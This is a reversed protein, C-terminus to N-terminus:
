FQFYIFASPKGSAFVLAFLMLGYAYPEVATNIRNWISGTNRWLSQFHYILVPCCLLCIIKLEVLDMPNALAPQTGSVVAKIYRFFEESSNLSFFLWGITVYSFVFMIRVVKALGELSYGTLSQLSLRNSWRHDRSLARELALAIGHWLGWVGFKWASGHWLGGLFMVILINIYTTALGHRNGGLPIYLYDRLWTSLTIHWRRWFDRFSDALYPFNFNEPLDYGFLRAVGIAILSYGAFDAFIQISYGVALAVLVLAPKQEWQHAYRLVITFQNLNDAIVMKLFYGGTLLKVIPLWDVSALEKTAIQGYFMKAKAIPGSMLKPFFFIYLATNSSHKLVSTWSWGRLFVTDEPKRYSDVLLSIGSFTYFSIALPLPLLFLHEMFSGDQPGSEVFPHLLIAKYKFLALVSLNIIVGVCMWLRRRRIPNPVASLFSLLCNISASVLLLITLGWDAYSYFVVSSVVLIHLQFPRAVPLYYLLFTLLVLIIFALGDFPM